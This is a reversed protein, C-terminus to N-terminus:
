RTVELITIIIPLWLMLLPELCGRRDELDDHVVTDELDMDRCGETM